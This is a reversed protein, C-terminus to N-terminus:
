AALAVEPELGSAANGRCGVGQGALHVRPGDVRKSHSRHSLEASVDLDIGRRFPDPRDHHAEVGVRVPVGNMRRMLPSSRSPAFSSTRIAGAPARAVVKLGVTRATSAFRSSRQSPRRRQGADEVAFVAEPDLRKVAPAATEDLRLAEAPEQDPEDLARERLGLGTEFLHVDRQLGASLLRGAIVTRLPSLEPARM